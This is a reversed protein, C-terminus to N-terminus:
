WTPWNLPDRHLQGCPISAALLATTRSVMAAPGCVYAEANDFLGHKGLVDPLKGTLGSYGPEDSLVPIVRFSSCAAELLQLDDLDYLDFQQRAGFFLTIKRPRGWPQNALAQEIIAKIPALGTGGAVCLLDKDSEALTMSGGAAGLLVCDGVNSHHVLTNSVMGGSLAKVHLEILGGPKPATAISYPRWVRPWKTVQVPIYQGAQYPLPQSPRLRLVAVGPSRLEHSVIEGIWWPPSTRADEEAAAQMTGAMYDLAAQWASATEPTWESGIFHQATDRLTAIFPAYHAETVGFRRHDRGLRTLIETRRPPDDLSWILRALAAFIRERQATMSLPFLSRSRPSLTFLRAYFYEMAAPGASVIRAFSEKVLRSEIGSGDAPKSIENQAPASNEPESFVPQPLVHNTLVNDAFYDGPVPAPAMWNRKRRSAVCTQTAQGPLGDTATDPISGDLAIAM